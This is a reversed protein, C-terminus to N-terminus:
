GVTKLVLQVKRECQNRSVVAFRTFGLAWRRGCRLLPAGQTGEWCLDFVGFSNCVAVHLQLARQRLCFKRSWGGLTRREVLEHRGQSESYFAKPM